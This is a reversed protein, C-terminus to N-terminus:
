QIEKTTLIDPLICLLPTYKLEREGKQQKSKNATKLQENADPLFVPRLIKHLEREGM